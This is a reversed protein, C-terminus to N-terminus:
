FNSSFHQDRIRAPANLQITSDNPEEQDQVQFTPIITMITVEHSAVLADPVRSNLTISM